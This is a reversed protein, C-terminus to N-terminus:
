QPPKPPEQPKDGPQITIVVEKQSVVRQNTTSYVLTEGTIETKGDTLWADGALEVAQGAREMLTYGPTGASITRRDAESMEEPTLLEIPASTASIATKRSEDGLLNSFRAAWEAAISSKKM